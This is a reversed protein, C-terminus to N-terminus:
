NPSLGGRRQRRREGGGGAERADDRWLTAERFEVGEGRRQDAEM